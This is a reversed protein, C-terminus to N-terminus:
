TQGAPCARGPVKGAPASRRSQAPSLDRVILEVPLLLTKNVSAPDSIKDLLLSAAEAGMLTHPVRVTTLAPSFADAFRM